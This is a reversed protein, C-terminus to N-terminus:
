DYRGSLLLMIVLVEHLHSVSMNLIYSTSFFSWEQLYMDYTSFQFAEAVKQMVSDVFM